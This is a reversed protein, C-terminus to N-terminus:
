HYRRFFPQRGVSFEEDFDWYPMLGIRQVQNEDEAYWVSVDWESVEFAYPDLSASRYSTILQNLFPIHAFALSQLYQNSRNKMRNQTLLSESAKIAIAHSNFANEMAQIEFVVVTRMGRYLPTQNPVVTGIDVKHLSDKPGLYAVNAHSGLIMPGHYLEVFDGRVKANLTTKEHTLVFEGNPIMLRFPLEVTLLILKTKDNWWDKEETHM